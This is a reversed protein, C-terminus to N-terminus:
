RAADVFQRWQDGLPVAPQSDLAARLQRAADRVKLTELKRTRGGRKEDYDVLYARTNLDINVIRDISAHRPWIGENFYSTPAELITFRETLAPSYFPEGLLFPSSWHFLHADRIAGPLDLILVTGPPKSALRRIARNMNKSITGADTWRNVAKVNAISWSCAIAAIVAYRLHWWNEKSLVAVMTAILVCLGITISYMHRPYNHTFLFPGSVLVFWVPGFFILSRLADPRRNRIAAVVAGVFACGALAILARHSLLYLLYEHYKASILQPVGGIGAALLPVGADGGFAIQRCTFYVAVVVALGIYPVVFPVPARRAQEWGPRQLRLADYVAIVLPLTVTSEKTFVAGAALGTLLIVYGTRGSERYRIFALLGGLFMATPLLDSQGAIWTVTEAHVPHVSFLLAAAFAVFTGGSFAKRVVAFVLWANVVHLGLSVVRYATADAEFLRGQIIGFLAIIPRLLNLSEGWIGESLDNFFLRPWRGLPYSSSIAVNAFDDALFYGGLSRGFLAVSAAALAFLAVPIPHKTAHTFM